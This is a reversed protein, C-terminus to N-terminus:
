LKMTELFGGECCHSEMLENPGDLGNAESAALGMELSVDVPFVPIDKNIIAYFQTKPEYTGDFDTHRMWSEVFVEAGFQQAMTIQFNRVEEDMTKEALHLLHKDKLDKPEAIPIWDSALYFMSENDSQRMDKLIKFIQNASLYEGISDRSHIFREPDIEAKIIDKGYEMAVELTGFYIGIGEQNNGNNMLKAELMKTGYDDGHYITKKM